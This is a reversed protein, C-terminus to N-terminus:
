LLNMSDLIRGKSEGAKYRQELNLQQKSTLPRKTYWHEGTRPDYIDCKDHKAVQNQSHARIISNIIKLVGPIAVMTLTFAEAPHEEVKRKVNDYSETARDCIKYWGDKIKQKLTRNDVTEM